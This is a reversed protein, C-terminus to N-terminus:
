NRYLQMTSPFWTMSDFNFKANACAAFGTTADFAFAWVGQNDNMALFATSGDPSLSFGEWQGTVGPLPHVALQSQTTMDVLSVCNLNDMIVYRPLVVFLVM